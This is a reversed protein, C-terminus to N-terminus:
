FAIISESSRGNKCGGFYDEAIKSYVSKDQKDVSLIMGILEYTDNATFPLLM